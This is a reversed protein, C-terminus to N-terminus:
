RLLDVRGAETFAKIEEALKQRADQYGGVVRQDIDGHYGAETTSRIVRVTDTFETAADLLRDIAANVSDAGFFAIEAAIGHLVDLLPATEVTADNKGRPWVPIAVLERAARRLPAYNAAKEKDWQHDAATRRKRRETQFTVSAAILAAALTVLTSAWSFLPSNM